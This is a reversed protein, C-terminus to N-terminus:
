FGKGCVSSNKFIEAVMKTIQKAESHMEYSNAINIAMEFELLALDEVIPTM